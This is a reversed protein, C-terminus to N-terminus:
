KASRGPHSFFIISVSQLFDVLKRPFKADSLIADLFKLRVKAMILMSSFVGFSPQILYRCFDLPTEKLLITTGVWHLNNGLARNAIRLTPSIKRGGVSCLFCSFLMAQATSYEVGVELPSRLM